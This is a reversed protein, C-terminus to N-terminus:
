KGDVFSLLLMLALLLGLSLSFPFYLVVLLLFQLIYSHINTITSLFSPLSSIFIFFLLSSIEFDNCSINCVGLSYLIYFLIKKRGERMRERLFSYSRIKAHIDCLTMIYHPFLPKIFAFFFYLRAFNIHISLKKGGVM